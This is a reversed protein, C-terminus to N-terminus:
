IKILHQNSYGPNIQVPKLSYQSTLLPLHIGGDSNLFVHSTIIQDKRSLIHNNLIHVISCVVFNNEPYIKLSAIM